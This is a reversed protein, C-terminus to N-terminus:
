LSESDVLRNLREINRELSRQDLHSRINEFILCEETYQRVDLINKSNGLIRKRDQGSIGVLLPDVFSPDDVIFVSEVTPYFMMFWLDRIRSEGLREDITIFIPKGLAAAYGIESLTGYCDLRDIHAFFRPNAAILNLCLSNVQSMNLCMDSALHNFSEHGSRNSLESLSDYPVTLRSSLAVDLLAKIRHVECSSPCERNQIVEIEYESVGDILEYQSDTLRHPMGDSITTSFTFCGGYVIRKGYLDYAATGMASAPVGFIKERYKSSTSGAFYIGHSFVDTDSIEESLILKHPNRM